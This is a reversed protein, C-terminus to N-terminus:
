LLISETFIPPKGKRGPEVRNTCFSNDSSILSEFSDAKQSDDTRNQFNVAKQPLRTIDNQTLPTHSVPAVSSM